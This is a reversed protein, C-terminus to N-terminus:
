RAGLWMLIQIAVLECVQIIVDIIVQLTQPDLIRMLLIAPRRAQIITNLPLMISGVLNIITVVVM